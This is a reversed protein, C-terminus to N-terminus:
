PAIVVRKMETTTVTVEVAAEVVVEATLGEERAVMIKGTEAV